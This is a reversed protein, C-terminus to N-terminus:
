NDELALGLKSLIILESKNKGAVTSAIAQATDFILHKLENTFMSVHEKKFALFDEFCDNGDSEEKLLWDFVIEIQYAADTGFDDESDELSLWKSKVIERLKDLEEKRVVKDSVAISYFLKGLAQYM